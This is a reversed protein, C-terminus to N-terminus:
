KIQKSNLSSFRRSWRRLMDNWGSLEAEFYSSNGGTQDAWLIARRPLAMRDATTGVSGRIVGCGFVYGAALAAQIVRNDYNGNPYCIGVPAQGTWECLKAKSFALESDLAGDDLQNLMAHSVSHSAIEHGRESLKKLERPTMPSFVDEPELKSIGLTGLALSRAGEPLCKLAGLWDLLSTPLIDRCAHVADAARRVTGSPDRCWACAALDFWMYAGEVFGTAVFFTGRLGHAELIPAAHAFNDRYGDDFTVCVLPRRRATLGYNGHDRLAMADRVTMVDCHKALWGMQQSFVDDNVVLNRLPYREALTPPLVKHYMLIIVDNRVMRRM